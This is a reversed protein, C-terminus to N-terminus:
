KLQLMVTETIVELFLHKPSGPFFHRVQNIGWKASPLNKLSYSAMTHIIWRHMVNGWFKAASLLCWRLEQPDSISFCTPGTTQDLTEGSTLNDDQAIYSLQPQFIRGLGSTTMPHIVKCASPTHPISVEKRPVHTDTDPLEHSPLQREWLTILSAHM